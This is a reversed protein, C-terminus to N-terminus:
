MSNQSERFWATQLTGDFHFNKTNTCVSPTEFYHRSDVSYTRSCKVLGIASFKSAEGCKPYHIYVWHCPNQVVVGCFTYLIHCPDLKVGQVNDFAIYKKECPKVPLPMWVLEPQHRPEWLIHFHTGQNVRWCNNCSASSHQQSAYPPPPLILWLNELPFYVRSVSEM